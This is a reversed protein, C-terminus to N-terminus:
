SLPHGGSSENSTPGFFDLGEIGEHVVQRSRRRLDRARDPCDSFPVQAQGHGQFNIPSRQLAFEEVRGLQDVSHDFLKGHEGRFYGAHGAFHSGLSFETALRQHFADGANPLVEGFTDVPHGAVQGGLDSINGVHGGGDRAPIEGAFDGDVHLPLDELQLFGNVCHDILKVGERGFDAAHGAFDASLSFETALCLDASDRSGPLIQGVIDIGHRVVQSSLHAIDGVYSSRDCM